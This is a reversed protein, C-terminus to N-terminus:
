LAEVAQKAEKLGAGTRERWIKIAQIKKGQSLLERAERELDSQAEQAGGSVGLAELILDLKLELQNLRRELDTDIM